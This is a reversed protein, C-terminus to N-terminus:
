TVILDNQGRRLRGLVSVLILLDMGLGLDLVHRFIRHGLGVRVPIIDLLLFLLLFLPPRFQEM